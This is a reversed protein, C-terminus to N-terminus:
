PMLEHLYYIPEPLDRLSWLIKGPTILWCWRGKCPPPDTVRHVARQVDATTGDVHAATADLHGMLSAVHPDTIRANLSNIADTSSQATANLSALLPQAAAVTRQSETATDTLARATGSLAALTGQAQAATGHLDAFLQREQADLTGLQKNEHNAAVEIQGFTGRITNLTKAVDALTGCPKGAGCPRNLTTLTGNIGAHTDTITTSVATGVEGWEQLAFCGYYAIALISVLSVLGIGNLIYKNM